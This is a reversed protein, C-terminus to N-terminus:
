VTARAVRAPRGRPRPRQPPSGLPGVTPLPAPHDANEDPEPTRFLNAELRQLLLTVLLVAVPVVLSIWV